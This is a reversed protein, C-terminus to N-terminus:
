RLVMSIDKSRGSNDAKWAPLYENKLVWLKESDLIIIRNKMIMRDELFSIQLWLNKNM